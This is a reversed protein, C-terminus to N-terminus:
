QSDLNGNSQVANNTKEFWKGADSSEGSSNKTSKNFKPSITSPPNAQDSAGANPSSM